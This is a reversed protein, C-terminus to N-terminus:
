CQISALFCNVGVITPVCNTALVTTPVVTPCGNDQPSTKVVACYIEVTECLASQADGGRINNLKEDTLTAVIEKNLQLKRNKEM